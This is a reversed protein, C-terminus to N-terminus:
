WWGGAGGGGFAQKAREFQQREQRYLLTLPLAKDFYLQLGEM